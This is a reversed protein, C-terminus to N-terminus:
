HNLLSSTLKLVVISPPFVFSEVLMKAKLKHRVPSEVMFLRNGRKWLPTEDQNILSISPLSVQHDNKRDDIEKIQKTSKSHSNLCTFM